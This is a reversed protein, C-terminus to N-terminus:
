DERGGRNEPRANRPLAGPGDYEPILEKPAITRPGAGHQYMEWYFFGALAVAPPLVVAALLALLRKTSRTM